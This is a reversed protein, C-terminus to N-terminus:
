AENGIEVGDAVRPADLVYLLIVQYMAELDTDARVEGVFYTICQHWLPLWTLDNDIEYFLGYYVHGEVRFQHEDDIAPFFRYISDVVFISCYWDAQQPKWELGAEKMDKALQIEKDTFNM